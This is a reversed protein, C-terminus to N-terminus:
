ANPLKHVAQRKTCRRVDDDGIREADVPAFDDRGSLTGVNEAIRREHSFLEHGGFLLRVHVDHAAFDFAAAHQIVNGAPIELRRIHSSAGADTARENGGIRDTLALLGANQPAFKKPPMPHLDMERVAGKRPFAFCASFCMHMNDDDSEPGDIRRCLEDGVVVGVKFM